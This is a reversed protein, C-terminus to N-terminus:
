VTFKDLIHPGVELLCSTIRGNWSHEKEHQAKGPEQNKHKKRDQKANHGGRKDFLSPDIHKEHM